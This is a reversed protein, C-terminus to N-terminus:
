VTLAATLLTDAEAVTMTVTGGVLPPPVTTNWSVKEADEVNADPVLLPFHYAFAGCAM